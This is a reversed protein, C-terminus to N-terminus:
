LFWLSFFTVFRYTDDTDRDLPQLRLSSLYGRFATGHIIWPEDIVEYICCRNLRIFVDGPVSDGREM